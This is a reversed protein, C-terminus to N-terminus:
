TGSASPLMIGAALAWPTMSTLLLLGASLVCLHLLSFTSLVRSIYSSRRGRKDAGCTAIRGFAARPAPPSAAPIAASAAPADYM